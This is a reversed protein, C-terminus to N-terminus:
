LRQGTFTSEWFLRSRSCTFTMHECSHWTLTRKHELITHHVSFAQCRGTLTCAELTGRPCTLNVWRKAICPNLPPLTTVHQRWRMMSQQGRPYYHYNLNRRQSDPAFVAGDTADSKLKWVFPQSMLSKSNGFEVNLASRSLWDVTSALHLRGLIKQSPLNVQHMYIHLHSVIVPNQLSLFSSGRKFKLRLTFASKGM